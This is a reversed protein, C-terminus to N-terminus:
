SLEAREKARSIASLRPNLSLRTATNTLASLIPRGTAIILTATLIARPIDWALSTALHFIIFRHLNEVVSGGLVYSLQTDEGLLWPWLQLDMLAGFILSAFIGYSALAAIEARGVIRRPILSVGLAVWGAAFMQFSLWPGVGGSLIASAAMAVIGICMGIESGFIRAAIILLFWMPEIGVAGAGLLRLVSIAATLVGVIAVIKSDILKRSILSTLLLAACAAVLLALWGAAHSNFNHARRFLALDPAFLPWTFAIVGILNVSLFPIRKM